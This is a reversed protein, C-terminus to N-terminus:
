ATHRTQKFAQLVSLKNHQRLTTFNYPKDTIRLLIQNHLMGIDPGKELM